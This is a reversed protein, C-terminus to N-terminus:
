CNPFYFSSGRERGGKGRLRVLLESAGESVIGERLKGDKVLTYFSSTCDKWVFGQGECQQHLMGQYPSCRMRNVQSKELKLVLLEM